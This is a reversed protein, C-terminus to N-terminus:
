RRWSKDIVHSEARARGVGPSREQVGALLISPEGGHVEVFMHPRFDRAYALM